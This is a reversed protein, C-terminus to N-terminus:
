STTSCEPGLNM